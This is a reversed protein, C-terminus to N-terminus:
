SNKMGCQSFITLYSIKNEWMKKNRLDQTEEDNTSKKKQM